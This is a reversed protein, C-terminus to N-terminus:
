VDRQQASDKGQADQYVTWTAKVKEDLRLLEEATDVTLALDPAPADGDTADGMVLGLRRSYAILEERAALFDSYAEVATEETLQVKSRRKLGAVFRGTSKGCPRKM